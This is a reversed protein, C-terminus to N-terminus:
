RAPLWEFKMLLTRQLGNFNDDSVIYIFKRSGREIYSIGEMNDVSLPPALRAIERSKATMGNELAAFDAVGLTASVGTFPSFHRQLVLAQQAGPLAVCDTPKFGDEPLFGFRVESTDSILYADKGGASGPADETMLLRKNDPGLTCVAEAGGNSPWLQMAPLRWEQAAATKFTEPKAPDIDNYMWLRHDGEFSLTTTAGVDVSEADRNIKTGPNGHQDLVPALAIGTVGVLQAEKEILAFSIWSGADSVALVVGDARVRMGSIGGFDANPSHLVLGGRYVLEGVRTQAPDSKNLPLPATSIVLPAAQAPPSLSLHDAMAVSVAIVALLFLSWRRM